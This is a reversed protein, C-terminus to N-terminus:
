VMADGINLFTGLCSEEYYALFIPPVGCVGIIASYVKEFHPKSICHFVRLFKKFVFAFLFVALSVSLFIVANFAIGIQM